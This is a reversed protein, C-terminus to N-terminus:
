FMSKGRDHRNNLAEAKLLLEHTEPNILQQEEFKHINQYLM